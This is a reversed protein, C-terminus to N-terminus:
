EHTGELVEVRLGTDEAVKIAHGKNEYGESTLIPNGNTSRTRVYFQGDTGEFVQAVDAIQDNM